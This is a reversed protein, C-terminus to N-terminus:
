SSDREDDVEVGEIGRTRQRLAHMMSEGHIGDPARTGEFTAAVNPPLKVHFGSSADEIKAQFAVVVQKRVSQFWEEATGNPDLQPRLVGDVLKITRTLRRRKPNGASMRRNFEFARAPDGTLLDLVLLRTRPRLRDLLTPDDFVWGTLDAVVDAVVDFRGVMEHTDALVHRRVKVWSADDHREVTPDARHLAAYLDQHARIAAEDPFLRDCTCCQYDTAIADTMGAAGISSAAGGRRLYFLTYLQM